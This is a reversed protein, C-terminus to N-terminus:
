SYCTHYCVSGDTASSLDVAVFNTTEQGCVNMVCSSGSITGRGTCYVTTTGTRRLTSSTVTLQYAGDMTSDLLLTVSRKITTVNNGYSSSADLGGLTVPKGTSVVASSSNVVTVQVPTSFCSRYGYTADGPLVFYASSSVVAHDCGLLM